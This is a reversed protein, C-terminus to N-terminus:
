PRRLPKQFMLTINPNRCGLHPHVVYQSSTANPVYIRFGDVHAPRCRRKPYNSANVEDLSSRLRHGPRVVYSAIHAADIRVAPAGIQTGNGDGVYSVGGYGGTRCAHGSTNRLVIWGYRHGAGNDSHRYSATLDTHTCSPVGAGAAQAPLSALAVGAALALASVGSVGSLLPGSLLRSTSLSM